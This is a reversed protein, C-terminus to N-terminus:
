RSRRPVPRSIIWAACSAMAVAVLLALILAPRAALLFVAYGFGIGASAARKGTRAIAKEEHWDKLPPGFRPHNLLWAELKPSSRAFCPAALILFITTPLLPLVAGLLGTGTLLLGACLWGLRATGTRVPAQDPSTTPGNEPMIDPRVDTATDASLDPPTEALSFM